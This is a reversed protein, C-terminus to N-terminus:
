PRSEEHRLLTAAASLLGLLWETQEREGGPLAPTLPQRVEDGFGM